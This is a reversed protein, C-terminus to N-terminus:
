ATKASATAINPDWKKGSKLIANAMVLLKRAVAVLIVKPKKGAAKLRDAFVKLAPNYRRAALAALDLVSRVRARGSAIHREGRRPGSDNPIPALGVLASVKKHDLTGLEPVGALLTRSVVPGIGPISQLLEDRAQWLPSARVMAGLEKDLQDIRQDLWAIHRQLDQRLRRDAASGLRNQEMTRMGIWQRRRDLLGGLERGAADPLPRPPPRLKRGFCVLV